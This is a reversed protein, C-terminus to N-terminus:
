RESVLFGRFLSKGALPIVLTYRKGELLSVFTEYEALLFDTNFVLTTYGPVVVGPGLEYQEPLTTKKIVISKSSKASSKSSPAPLRSQRLLDLLENNPQAQQEIDKNKEKGDHIVPDDAGEQQEQKRLSPQDATGSLGAKWRVIKDQLVQGIVVKEGTSDLQLGSEARIFWAACLAIRKWRLRAVTERSAEGASENKLSSTASSATSPGNLQVQESPGGAHPPMAPGEYHEDLVDGEGEPVLYLGSGGEGSLYVQGVSFKTYAKWYGRGFLSCSRTWELGRLCWDEPLPTGFLRASTNTLNLRAHPPIQDFVKLLAEWPVYPELVRLVAPSQVALSALFTLSSTLYPSIAPDDGEPRYPKDCADVILASLLELARILDMPLSNTAIDGLTLNDLGIAISQADTQTRSSSPLPHWSNNVSSSITSCGDDGITTSSKSSRGGKERKHQKGQPLLKKMVGDERGFQMVASICIVAMMIWTGDKSLGDSLEAIKVANGEHSQKQQALAYTQSLKELLRAQFDPFSDLDKRSVLLGQLFLFLSKASAEPKSRKEQREPM